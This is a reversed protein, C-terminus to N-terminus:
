RPEGEQESSEEEEEESGSYEYETEDSTLLSVYYSLETLGDFYFNCFFFICNVTSFKSSRVFSFIFFPLPPYILLIM